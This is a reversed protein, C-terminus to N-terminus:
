DRHGSAASCPTCASAACASCIDKSYCETIGGDVWCRKGGRGFTSILPLTSIGDCNWIMIATSSGNSQMFHPNQAPNILLHHSGLAHQHVQLTLVLMSAISCIPHLGGGCALSLRDGCWDITGGCGHCLWAPLMCVIDPSCGAQVVSYTGAIQTWDNM